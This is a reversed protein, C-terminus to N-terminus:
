ITSDFFSSGCQPSIAMAVCTTISSSNIAFYCHLQVPAAKRPGLCLVVVSSLRITGLFRVGGM